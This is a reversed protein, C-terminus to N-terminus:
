PLGLVVGFGMEFPSSQELRILALKVMDRTSMEASVVKMNFCGFCRNVAESQKYHFRFFVELLVLILEM